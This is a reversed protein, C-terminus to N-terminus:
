GKVKLPLDVGQEISAIIRGDKMVYGSWLIGNSVINSNVVATLNDGDNLDYMSWYNNLRAFGYNNDLTIIGENTLSSLVTLSMFEILMFDFGFNKAQEIELLFDLCGKKYKFEGIATIGSNKNLIFWDDLFTIEKSSNSMPKFKEKAESVKFISDMIASPNNDTGFKQLKFKACVLEKDLIDILTDNDKKEVKFQIDRNPLIPNLFKM